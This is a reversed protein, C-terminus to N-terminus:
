GTFDNSWLELYGQWTITILAVGTVRLRISTGSADLIAVSAVLAADGIMPVISTIGAGLATLTGSIRSYARACECTVTNTGDTGILYGKVHLGANISGIFGPASLDITAITSTAINVTTTSTGPITVNKLRATAM